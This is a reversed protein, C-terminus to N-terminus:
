NYFINSESHSPTGRAKEELMQSLMMSERYAEDYPDRDRARKNASFSDFGNKDEGRQDGSLIFNEFEELNSRRNRRKRSSERPTEIQQNLSPDLGFKKILARKDSKSLSITGPMTSAAQPSKKRDKIMKLQKPSARGQAAPTIKNRTYVKYNMSTIESHRNFPYDSNQSSRHHNTRKTPNKSRKSKQTRRKRGRLLGYTDFIPRDTNERDQHFQISPPCDVKDLEM